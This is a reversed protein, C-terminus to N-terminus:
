SFIIYKKIKDLTIKFDLLYNFFYEKNNFEVRTLRDIISWSVEVYDDLQHDIM